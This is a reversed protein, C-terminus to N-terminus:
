ARSPSRARGRKKQEGELGQRAVDVLSGFAAPDNVALDALMKRDLEV